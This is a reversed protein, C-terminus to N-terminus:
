SIWRTSLIATFHVTPVWPFVLPFSAFSIFIIKWSNGEKKLKSNTSLLRKRFHTKTEYPFLFYQRDM